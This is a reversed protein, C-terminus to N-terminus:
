GNSERVAQGGCRSCVKFFSGFDCSTCRFGVHARASGSTMGPIFGGAAALAKGDRDSMEFFGGKATYRKGSPGDVERCGISPAAVRM